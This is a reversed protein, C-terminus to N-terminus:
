IHILSLVCVCVCVGNETDEELSFRMSGHWSHSILPHWKAARHYINETDDANMEINYRCTHRCELALGSPRVQRYIGTLYGESFLRKGNIMCNTVLTM